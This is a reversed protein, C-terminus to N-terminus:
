PLTILGDFASLLDYAAAAGAKDARLEDLAYLAMLTHYVAWQAEERLELQRGGAIHLEPLAAIIEAARTRARDANEQRRRADDANVGMDFTAGAARDLARQFRKPAKTRRAIVIVWQAPTLRAVEDLFRQLRPDDGEAVARKIGQAARAQEAHTKRAEWARAQRDYREESRKIKQQWSRPIPTAFAKEFEELHDRVYSRFREAMDDVAGAHQRDLDRLPFPPDDVLKMVADFRRDEAVPLRRNPFLAVAADLYAGARAAGIRQCWARAIPVLADAQGDILFKWLGEVSVDLYLANLTITARVLEPRVALPVVAPPSALAVLASLCDGSDAHALAAAVTPSQSADDADM